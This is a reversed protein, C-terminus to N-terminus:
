CQAIETVRWISLISDPPFRGDILPYNKPRQNNGRKCVSLVYRTVWPDKKFVEGEKMTIQSLGKSSLNVFFSFFTNFIWPSVRMLPIQTDVLPLEIKPILASGPTQKVPQRECGELVEVPMNGCKQHQPFLGVVKTLRWRPKDSQLTSFDRRSTRRSRVDPPPLQRRNSYLIEWCPPFTSPFRSKSSVPLVTSKYTRAYKVLSPLVECSAKSSAEKTCAKVAWIRWM